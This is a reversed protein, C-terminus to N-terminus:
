LFLKRPPIFDKSRKKLLAYEGESKLSCRLLHRYEEINATKQILVKFEQYERFCDACQHLHEEIERKLKSSIEGDIFASLERKVKKCRM